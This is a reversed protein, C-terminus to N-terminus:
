MKNIRYPECLKIQSYSRDRRGPSHIIRMQITLLLLPIWYQSTCRAAGSMLHQDAERRSDTSSCLRDAKQKAAFTLELMSNIEQGTNGLPVAQIQETGTLIALCSKPSQVLWKAM